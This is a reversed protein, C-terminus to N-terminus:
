DSFSNARWPPYAMQGRDGLDVVASAPQEPHTALSAVLGQLREEVPEPTYLLAERASMVDSIHFSYGLAM